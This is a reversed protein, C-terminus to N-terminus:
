AQRYRSLTAIPGAEALRGDALVICDDCAALTSSRHSVVLTTLRWPVGKLLRLIAAESLGDVANTAEDLILIEPRRLLARALAIRQRQGGSLRLGNMGVDTSYGRPLGDIFEDIHALRAAEAVQDFPADPRGYRINEAINGDLLEADQGAIGLHARWSQLDYSTLDAGNVLIRGGTPELLRCLLNVITSKGAGSPGVLATSRGPELEFSLDRLVFSGAPTQAHRFSVRDFIIPAQLREFRRGRHVAPSKAPVQLLWEVEETASRNGALEARAQELARIFPQARYLLVLFAALLPLATGAWYAGILLGIFLGAHAVELAASLAAALTQQSLVAGAMAESADSLQRQEHREQGFLRIVRMGTISRWMHESLRATAQSIRTGQQEAAGLFRQHALRILLVGLAVALTLRWNLTLLLGAFVAVAALDSVVTFRTHIVALARWSEASLINFLRTSDAELFFPYDATNVRESLACRLEHGARGDVWAMFSTQGVRVLGKLAIFGFITLGLWVLRENPPLRAAHNTIVAIPGPLEIAASSMLTGLLPILLSIGFGEILSSILSLVGVIPITWAYRRTITRTSEVCAAAEHPQGAPRAALRLAAGEAMLHDQLVERARGREGM